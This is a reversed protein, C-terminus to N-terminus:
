ENKVLGNLFKRIAKFCKESQEIYSFHGCKKLIVLTSDPLVNKTEIATAVPVSDQEGHIILIPFSLQHLQPRLDYPKSFFNRGFIKEIKPGHTATAKSFQLAIKQADSKKFCYTEFIMRYYKEVASPDGREFEVSHQFQDLPEQIAQLKRACQQDFVKMGNLNMPVSDMLILAEVHEPYTIAYEAALIGGWSHGLLIIKHLGFHKRIIELDQVFRNMNIQDPDLPGASSRGSGRQDYFIVDNDKTLELMQPLLYNQDMGPGGHLVIIPINKPDKDKSGFRQYYLQEGPVKIFGQQSSLSTKQDAIVKVNACGLLLILFLIKKIMKQKKFFRQNKLESSM